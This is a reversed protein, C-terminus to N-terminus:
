FLFSFLSVYSSITSILFFKIKPSIGDYINYIIQNNIKCSYKSKQNEKSYNVLELVPIILSLVAVNEIRQVLTIDDSTIFSICFVLIYTILYLLLLKRM